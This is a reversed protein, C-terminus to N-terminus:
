SNSGRTSLSTDDTSREVVTKPVGTEIGTMSAGVPM